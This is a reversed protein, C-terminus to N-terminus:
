FRALIDVTLPTFARRSGTTSSFRSSSSCSSSSHRVYGVFFQALLRGQVALGAFFLQGEYPRCPAAHFKEAIRRLLFIAPLTGYAATMDAHGSGMVARLVKLMFMGLCCSPLVPTFTVM